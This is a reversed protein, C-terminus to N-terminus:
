NALSFLPPISSMPAVRLNARSVEGAGVHRIVGGGEKASPCTPPTLSGINSPGGPCTAHLIFCMNISHRPVLNNNAPNKVTTCLRLLNPTLCDITNGIALTQEESLQKGPTETQAPQRGRTAKLNQAHTIRM